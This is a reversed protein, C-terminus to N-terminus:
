LVTLGPSHEAPKQVAELTSIRFRDLGAVQALTQGEECEFTKKLYKCPIEHTGDNSVVSFFDTEAEKFRGMVYKHM